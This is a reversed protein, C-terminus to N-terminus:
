MGTACVAEFRANGKKKIGAKVVKIISNYLQAKNHGM